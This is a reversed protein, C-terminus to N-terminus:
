AAEGLALMRDVLELASTQLQEVTPRLRDVAAAGAAAWAADRAAAWAAAWAAVWAADRAAALIADWAAAWAADRAADGAAAWAAARAAARAADWAAAWAAAWAADWAAARAADWAANAACAAGRVTETALECSAEDRLEGLRRCLDAHDKLGALELWAPTQVRVLWDLALYSRRLEIVPTSKSGVLRPILPGLLRTRNDEDPISDNWSRLFDGIVPCACRPHDSWPEGAVFAVAEMVCAALDTESEPEDHAGSKLALGEVLALRNPDIEAQM